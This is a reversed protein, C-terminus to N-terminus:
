SKEVVKKYVRVGNKCQTLANHEFGFKTTSMGLDALYSRICGPSWSKWNKDQKLMKYMVTIILYSCICRVNSSNTPQEIKERDYTECLFTHEEFNEGSCWFKEGKNKSCFKNFNLLADKIGLANFKLYFEDEVNGLKDFAVAGIALIQSDESTEVDFIINTM